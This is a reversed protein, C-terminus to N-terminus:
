AIVRAFRFRIASSTCDTSWGFWSTAISNHRDLVGVRGPERLLEILEELGLEAGFAAALPQGARDLGGVVGPRVLDDHDGRLVPM